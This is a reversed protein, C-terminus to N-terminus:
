IEAETTPEASEAGPSADYTLIVKRGGLDYRVENMTNQMLLIGRGSPMLFELDDENEPIQMPQNVRELVERVDFGPGQDTMTWRARKGDYDFVIEVHRSTYHPDASRSALTQAFRNGDLEKLESSIELNGHVVSNTLSEHLALAIKYSQSASCIGCSIAKQTLFQVTKEIWEVKSPVRMRASAAEVALSVDAREADESVM